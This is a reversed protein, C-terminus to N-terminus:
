LRIVSCATRHGIVYCKITRNLCRRWISWSIEREDHFLFTCLREQEKIVSRLKCLLAADAAACNMIADYVRIVSPVTQMILINRRDNLQCIPLGTNGDILHDIIELEFDLLSLIHKLCFEADCSRLGLTEVEKDVACRIRKITAASNNIDSIGQAHCPICVYTQVTASCFTRVGFFLLAMFSIALLFRKM